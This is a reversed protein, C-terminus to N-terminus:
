GAAEGIEDAAKEDDGGGVSTDNLYDIHKRIIRPAENALWDNIMKSAHVEAAERAEKEAWGKVMWGWAIAGILAVIALIITGWTFALSLSAFSNALADWNATGSSGGELPATCHKTAANVFKSCAEVDIYSTDTANTLPM